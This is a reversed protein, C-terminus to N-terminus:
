SSNAVVCLLLKAARLTCPPTVKDKNHLSLLLWATNSRPAPPVHTRCPAMQVHLYPKDHGNSTTPPQQLSLITVHPQKCQEARDTEDEACTM